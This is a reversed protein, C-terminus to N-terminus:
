AKRTMPLGGSGPTAYTVIVSQGPQIEVQSAPPDRTVVTAGRLGEEGLLKVAKAVGMPSEAVIRLLVPSGCEGCSGPARGWCVLQAERPSAM